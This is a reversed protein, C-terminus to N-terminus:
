PELKQELEEESLVSIGLDIAKQLKSGANEGAVVFDTRKSVNNAVKGGRAEILTTAEERSRRQLTGTLVFTKGAFNPHAVNDVSPKPPAVPQVGLHLLEELITRNNPQSFFRHISAAVVTGIDRITELDALSADYLAQLSPFSAALVQATKEGVHPIGLAFLFRSLTTQKSKELQTVLKEASRKGMRELSMWDQQQLRYIDPLHQVLRQDVLQEVLKEGLGEINMAKRAVFHQLSAKLKAPCDLGTCLTVAEGPVRETEAGCVPCQEPLKYPQSHTPRFELIVKVVEPIVDGARQILVTDGERVDKRDIEDQNHLTARSITVGGVQVPVLHAVPTLAGTRGVQAEIKEIQTTEQQAPFKFAVAWRPSKAIFGLREQLPYSNVKVVMGDIDYDLTPRLEMLRHYGALVAEVGECEQSYPNVQFGWAKIAQLFQWHSEFRIGEVYGPAYVFAALPRKATEKPDLQKLSGATANRPNAFVKEGSALLGANFREFGKRSFYAEGRVELVPPVVIGQAQLQLPISHITKLNNTIDEGSVGDGRTAGVKLIGQEYLLSIAIGDIKPEIVYSISASAPQKLHRKIRQDFDRMEGEDMANALSLMPIRHNVKEFHELPSGGVRQTPTNPQKYQPYQAELAELQRYRRDYEADSIIPDDLVYYRHAHENLDDTLAKIRAEIEALNEPVTPQSDTQFLNM